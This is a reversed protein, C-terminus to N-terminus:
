ISFREVSLIMIWFSHSLWFMNGYNRMLYESKGSSLICLVLNMIGVLLLVVKTLDHRDFWMVCLLIM